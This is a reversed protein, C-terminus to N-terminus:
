ACKRLSGDAHIVKTTRAGPPLGWPSCPQGPYASGSMWSSPWLRAQTPFPTGTWYASATAGVTASLPTWLDAPQPALASGAFGFSSATFAAVGAVFPAVSRSVRRLPTVTM